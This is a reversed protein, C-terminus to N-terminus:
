ITQKRGSYFIEEEFALILESLCVFVAASFNLLGM